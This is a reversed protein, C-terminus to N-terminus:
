WQSRGGNSHRGWKTCACEWQSTVVRVPPLGGGMQREQAGRGRIHLRHAGLKGAYVGMDKDAHAVNMMRESQPTFWQACVLFPLPSCEGRGRCTGGGGGGEMHGIQVVGARCAFSAHLPPPPNPLLPACHVFLGGWRQDRCVGLLLVARDGSRM